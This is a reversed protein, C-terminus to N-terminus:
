KKIVSIDTQQKIKLKAPIGYNRIIYIQEPYHSEKEMYLGGESMTAWFSDWGTIKQPADYYYGKDDEYKPTYIGAPMDSKIIIVGDGCSFPKNVRLKAAPPTSSIPKIPTACSALLVVSAM